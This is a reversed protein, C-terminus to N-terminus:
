AATKRLLQGREAAAAALQVDLEGANVAGILTDIIEPLKAFEGVEIANKGKALEIAKGAYRLAFFSQGAANEFWGNRFRKRQELQIREGAENKRTVIHTPAYHQGALKAEAAHKQEFLSEVVKDRARKVPDAQANVPEANALRLTKLHAM